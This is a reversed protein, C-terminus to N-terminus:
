GNHAITRFPQALRWQPLTNTSFRQHFLAFSIKFDPDNLDKYFHKIHTPMVLGKYSIVKNSFSAIYFDEDDKLANEIERRTLYLLAEFRKTAVLSNTTIFVQMIRPLTELAQQGLAATDIPVERYFLVKLDNKECIRDIVEQQNLNRMFIMGVAIQKPLDIGAEEKAIKKIFEKPMSLLLGSGDGSKKDAAIAGRHMMRELATIADQLNQHSPINKINALLGFGCNDKFSKLLDM